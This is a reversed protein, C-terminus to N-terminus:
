KNNEELEDVQQEPEAVRQELYETKTHRHAFLKSFIGTRKLEVIFLILFVLFVIGVLTFVITQEVLIHLTTGRVGLTFPSILGFNQVTGSCKVFEHYYLSYVVFHGGISGIPFILLVILTILSAALISVFAIRKRTFFQKM